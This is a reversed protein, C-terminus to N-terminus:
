WRDYGHRDHWGGYSGYGGYYGYRPGYGPREYVVCGALAGALILCSLIMRLARMFTRGITM